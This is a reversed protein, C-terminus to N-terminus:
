VNNHHPGVDAVIIFNGKSSQKAVITGMPGEKEFCLNWDMKGKQDKFNEKINSQFNIKM